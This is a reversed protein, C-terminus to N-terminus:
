FSYKEKLGCGRRLFSCEKTPIFVNKPRWLLLDSDYYTLDKLHGKVYQYTARFVIKRQTKNVLIFTQNKNVWTFDSIWGSIVRGLTNSIGIVSVLFAADEM